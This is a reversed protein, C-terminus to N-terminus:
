DSVTLAQRCQRPRPVEDIQSLVREFLDPFSRRFCRAAPTTGDAVRGDVNHLVTWVQYRRLPLGRHNHQMQSLSGNRGEVASSARQFARAHDAAWATWGALVEATLQRTCPHQACAEAGVQLVLEIQAKHVPCRTRRRQDHWSMRPVVLAETWQTWRPTMAMQAMDQRVTQWWLDVLASISARQTRVKAVPEKKMPLGNRKRLTEIAELEARVQEEGAKSTQRIADVLGWPHMIRALTSLHQRWASGVGQGHTLSTACAVIRAQVQAAHAREAQARQQWRELHQKAHELDRKAHRLRGVLCLASGTALEHSLHLVDPISLCGLGTQALTVLAKARDSVLSLVETGCTSLRENARGYWTDFRRDMAVEEMFVSGSAVDMCVLMMRQLFTADVAGIVPRREGHAIGAQEWATTTELILRELTHMVRRLASPACGVHAELRLRGFLESLTEAGVGRQLGVVCLTAVILRILWARGAETEWWSSEPSRDRRDIAQLHRHVSSTSLGTRDALRRIRQTGHERIANFMVVSKAWLGM